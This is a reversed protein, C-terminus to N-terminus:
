QKSDRRGVENIYDLQDNPQGTILDKMMGIISSFITFKAGIRKAIEQGLRVDAEKPKLVFGLVSSTALHSLTIEGGKKLDLILYYQAPRPHDSGGGFSYTLGNKNSLPSIRVGIIEDFNVQERKKSVLSRRIHTVTRTSSDVIVNESWITLLIIASFIVLGVGLWVLDHYNFLIFFGIVSFLLVFLKFIPPKSSTAELRESTETVVKM